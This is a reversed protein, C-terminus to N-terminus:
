IPMTFERSDFSLSDNQSLKFHLSRRSLLPDDGEVIYMSGADAGTVFRAKELILNLLRDIERETTLARAIEILEGLEYRYRNLWKGRSESRAKMDMLEFAQHLAVELEEPGPEKGLLAALGLNLARELDPDKPRGLLILRAEVLALKETWPGLLDRETDWVKASTILVQ